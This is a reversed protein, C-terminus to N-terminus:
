IEICNVILNCVFNEHWIHYTGYITHVNDHINIHKNVARCCCCMLQILAQTISSVLLLAQKNM